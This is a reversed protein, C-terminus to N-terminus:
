EKPAFAKFSGDDPSERDKVGELVVRFSSSFSASFHILRSQPSGFEIIRFVIARRKFSDIEISRDEEERLLVATPKRESRLELFCTNTNRYRRTILATAFARTSTGATLAEQDSDEM